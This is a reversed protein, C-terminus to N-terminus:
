APAHRLAIAGADVLQCLSEAVAFAGFGSVAIIDSVDRRGDALRLVLWDFSSITITSRHDPLQDVVTPVVSMSPLTRAIMRWQTLRSEVDVMVATVDVRIGVDDGAGAGSHYEFRAGPLTLALDVLAELVATHMMVQMSRPDIVGRDLLDRVIAVDNSPDQWAIEDGDVVAEVVTRLSPSAPATAWAIRGELLTVRGPTAGDIWLVGSGHQSVLSVLDSLGLDDITGSLTPAISADIM